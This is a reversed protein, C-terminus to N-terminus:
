SITSGNQFTSKAPREVTDDVNKRGGVIELLLIGFNYVDAKSSVNGFNKSFV